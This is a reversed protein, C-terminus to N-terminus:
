KGTKVGLKLLVEKTVDTGGYLVVKKDLVFRLGREKAVKGIADTVRPLLANVMQQKRADLRGQYDDFLQRKEQDSMDKSKKDFEAQLKATETKLPEDLEPVIFNDTLVQVDVYGLDSAAQSLSWGAATVLLVLVLAAGGVIQKRKWGM